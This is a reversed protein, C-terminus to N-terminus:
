GGSCVTTIEADLDKTFQAGLGADWTQVTGNATATIRVGGATHASTAIICSMVRWTVTLRVTQGDLVTAPLGPDATAAIGPNDQSISDVTVTASAPANLVLTYNFRVPTLQMLTNGIGGYSVELEAKPDPLACVAQRLIGDNVWPTIGAPLTVRTTRAAGRSSYGTLGVDRAVPPSATVSCDYNFPVTIVEVDKPALALPSIATDSGIMTVSTAGDDAATNGTLLDNASQRLLGPQDLSLGTLEVMTAGTNQVALSLDLSSGDQALAYQASILTVDFADDTSRLKVVAVSAAAVVVLLAASLAAIVRNPRPVRPLWGPRLRQPWPLSDADAVSAVTGDSTTTASASGPGSGSGSTEDAEPEGGDEDEPGSGLFEIESVGV